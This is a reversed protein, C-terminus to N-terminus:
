PSSGRTQRSKKFSKSHEVREQGGTEQVGNVSVPAERSVLAMSEVTEILADDSVQVCEELGEAQLRGRSAREFRTCLERM